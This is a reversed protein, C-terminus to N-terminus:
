LCYIEATTLILPIGDDDDCAQSSIIAVNFLYSRADYNRTYAIVMLCV